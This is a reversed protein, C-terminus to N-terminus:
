DNRQAVAESESSTVDGGPTDWVISNKKNPSFKPKVRIEDPQIQNPQHRIDNIDIQKRQNFEKLFSSQM